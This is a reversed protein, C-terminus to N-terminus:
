SHRRLRFVVSGSDMGISASAETGFALDTMNGATAGFPGSDTVIGAPLPGPTDLPLDGFRYWSVLSSTSFSLNKLDQAYGNNYLEAIKAESLNEKWITAEDLLGNFIHFFSGSTTPWGTITPDLPAGTFAEELPYNDKKAIGISCAGSIPPDTWGGFGTPITNGVPHPDMHYALSIKQGDLYISWRNEQSTSGDGTYSLAVHQWTDSSQDSNATYDFTGYALDIGSPFMGREYNVYALIKYKNQMFRDLPSSYPDFNPMLGFYVSGRTPASGAGYAERGFHFLPWDVVFPWQQTPPPSPSSGTPVEKTNMWISLTFGNARPRIESDWDTGLKYTAPPLSSTSTANDYGIQVGTGSAFTPANIPPEAPNWQIGYNSCSLAYANAFRQGGHVITYDNQLEGAAGLDATPATYIPSTEFNEVADLAWASQSVNYGQSNPM